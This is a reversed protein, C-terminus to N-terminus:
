TKSLTIMGGLVASSGLLFTTCVAESVSLKDVSTVANLAASKTSASLLGSALKVTNAGVFSANLFNGASVSFANSASLSASPATSLCCTKAEETSLKFAKAALPASTSVRCPLLNDTLKTLKAPTDFVSLSMTVYLLAVPVNTVPAPEVVESM